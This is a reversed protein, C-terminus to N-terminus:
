PISNTSTKQHKGSSLGVLRQAIEFELCLGLMEEVGETSVTRGVSLDEYNQELNDIFVWVMMLRLLVFEEIPVPHIKRTTM